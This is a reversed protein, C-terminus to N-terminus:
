KFTAALTFLDDVKEQSWGLHIVAGQFLTNTRKFTSAHAWGDKTNQDTSAAAVLEDVAQRDAPNANLAQKVQYNTVEHPVYVPAPPREILTVEGNVLALTHTDSVELESEVLQNIGTKVHHPKANVLELEGSELNFLYSNM